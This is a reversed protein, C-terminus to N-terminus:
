MEATEPHLLDQQSPPLGCGIPGELRGIKRGLWIFESFKNLKCRYVGTSARECWGLRPGLVPLSSMACAM